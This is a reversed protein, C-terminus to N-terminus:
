VIQSLLFEELDEQFLKIKINIRARAETLDCVSASVRQIVLEYM